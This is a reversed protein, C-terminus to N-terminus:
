GAVSDGERPTPGSSPIGEASANTRPANSLGRDIGQESLSSATRWAPISAMRAAGRGTESSGLVQTASPPRRAVAGAM